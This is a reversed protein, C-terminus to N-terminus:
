CTGTLTRWHKGTNRRARSGSSTTPAKCGPQQALAQDNQDYQQRATLRKQGYVSAYRNAAEQQMQEQTLPTYANQNSQNLKTILDELSTAM